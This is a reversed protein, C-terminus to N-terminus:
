IKLTSMGGDVNIIQGTISKSKESLLFNAMESIDEPECIKKLPHKSAINEEIKENRLIKQAMETRTITPAICNVRIIPALEAALSKTLGEIGAKAVSISSHFPMGQTVAVTSFFLISPFNDKSINKLYTQVCKVAGLVNIKFDNIFDEEKLQLIPKLTISGPCYVISDIMGVDPLEDSLVDGKKYSLNTHNLDLPTRSLNICYSGLELQSEIIKKGIGKSGGIVLLKRM